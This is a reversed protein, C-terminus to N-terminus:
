NKSRKQKEVRERERIRHILLVLPCDTLNGSGEGRNHHHNNYNNHYNCKNFSLSGAM